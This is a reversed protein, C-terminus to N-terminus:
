HIKPAGEALAKAPSTLAELEEYDVQVLAKIEALTEKNRSVVLAVSDGVYRTIDGVNIMVDWDSIFELHGIKNNGPVDKATLVAECDPHNLAQTADISLVRARPYKTRVASAHLMGEVELDDVYIGTGLTKESADVRMFDEGLKGTSSEQPIPSDERLLRAAIQIADVIKAYGTCRCINGKIAKRIEEETPDAVSNLLGQAAMVFGPICFGCQVAGAKAFAYEYVEKQRESLGEITVVTKGAVKELTLVCAKMAQGDVLVTCTGCAGSECGNKTGTLRLDERLFNMLKKNSECTVGKGNVTLAYM